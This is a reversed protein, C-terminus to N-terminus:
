QESGVRYDAIRQRLLDSAGKGTCHRFLRDLRVQVRQREAELEEDSITDDVVFVKDIGRRLLSGLMSDTLATAVPLLVTGHADLVPESLIMGPQADDTDVQRHRTIM